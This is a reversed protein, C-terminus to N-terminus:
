FNQLPFCCPVFSNDRQPTQSFFGGNPSRITLQSVAPYTRCVPVISQAAGTTPTQSGPLNVFIQTAHDCDLQYPPVSAAVTTDTM